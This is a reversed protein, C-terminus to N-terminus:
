KQINFTITDGETYLSDTLIYLNNKNPFEKHYITCIYKKGTNTVAYKVDFVVYEDNIIVGAWNQYASSCLLIFLALLLINKM